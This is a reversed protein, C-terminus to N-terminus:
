YDEGRGMTRAIKLLEDGLAPKARRLLAVLPFRRLDADKRPADLFARILAKKVTEEDGIGRGLMVAAKIAEHRNTSKLKQIYCAADAKCSRVVGLYAVVKPNELGASVRASAKKM